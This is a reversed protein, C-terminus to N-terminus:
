GLHGAGPSETDSRRGRWAGRISHVNGPGRELLLLQMDMCGESMSVSLGSGAEGESDVWHQPITPLGGLCGNNSRVDNAEGGM